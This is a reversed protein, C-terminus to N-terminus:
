VFNLKETGDRSDHRQHLFLHVPTWYKSGGNEDADARLWLRKIKTQTDIWTFYQRKPTDHIRASACQKDTINEGTCQM